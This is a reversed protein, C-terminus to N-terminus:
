AATLRLDAMVPKHDTYIEGRYVAKSKVQVKVGGAAPFVIIYDYHHHAAIFAGPPLDPLEDLDINLDGVLICTIGRRRLMEIHELMEEWHEWWHKQRWDLRTVNDAQGPEPWAKSVMHTCIFAIEDLRRRFRHKLLAVSYGRAPSIGALGGHARNWYHDTVRWILRRVSIPTDRLTFLHRYGAAWSFVKKIAADDQREAIEQWGILHWTAFWRWIARVDHLVQRYPLNPTNRLNSTAVRM